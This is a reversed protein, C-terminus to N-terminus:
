DNKLVKRMIDFHHESVFNFAIPIIHEKGTIIFFLWTFQYVLINGASDKYATYENDKYILEFADM